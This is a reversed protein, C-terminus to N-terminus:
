GKYIEDYQKATNVIDFLEQARMRGRNGMVCCLQKDNVLELIAAALAGADKPPVLYGTVGHVVVEPNGGVDTAVVPKCSAMAEILTLSIGESLSPLVFVDLVRLFRPVDTRKGLFVISDQLELAKADGQLNDREAGDGIIVCKVCSNAKNVISMAQLLYQIGKVKNLRAVIGIVRDTDKLNLENRTATIDAQSGGSFEDMIIGNYVVASRSLSVLGRDVFADRAKNAVFVVKRVGQSLVKFIFEVKRNVPFNGMGHRTAVISKVGSLWGAPAGYFTAVPNHTHVVDVRHRRFASALCCLLKLDFGKRKKYETVCIGAAMLESAFEGGSQNLSYVSVEHGTQHQSRALNVVLKELGGVELTDVVHAIRKM